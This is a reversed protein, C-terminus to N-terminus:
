LPVRGGNGTDDTREVRPAQIEEELGKIAKKTYRKPVGAVKRKPKAMPVSAQAAAEDSLSVVATSAPECGTHPLSPPSESPNSTV